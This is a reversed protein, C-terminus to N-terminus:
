LHKATNIQNLFHCKEQVTFSEESLGMESVGGPIVMEAYNTLINDTLTKTRQATRTPEIILLSNPTSFFRYPTLFASIWISQDKSVTYLGNNSMMLQSVAEKRKNHSHVSDISCLTANAMVTQM